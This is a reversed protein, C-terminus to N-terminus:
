HELLEQQARLWNDVACGGRCSEHIEYARRSIVVHSVVKMAVISAGAAEAALTRESLYGLISVRQDHLRRDVVFSSRVDLVYPGEAAHLRFPDDAMTLMGCFIRLSPLPALERLGYPLAGTSEPGSREAVSVGRVTARNM